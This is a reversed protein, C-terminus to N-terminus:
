SYKQNTFWTQIESILNNCKLNKTNRNISVIWCSIQANLNAGVADM